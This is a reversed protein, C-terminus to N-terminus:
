PANVQIDDITITDTIVVTKHTRSNIRCGGNKILEDFLVPLYDMLDSSSAGAELAWRATDSWSVASTKLTARLREVLRPLIADEAHTESKPQYDQKPRVLSAVIKKPKPDDQATNLYRLPPEMVIRISWDMPTVLAKNLRDTFQRERDLYIMKRLFDHVNAHYQMWQHKRDMFWQSINELHNRIHRCHPAVQGGGRQEDADELHSLWVNSTTISSFITIRLDEVTQVITGLLTECKKIANENPDRLMNTIVSGIKEYQQDMISQHRDTVSMLNEASQKLGPVIEQDWVRADAGHSVANYLRALEGNFLHLIETLKKGSMAVQQRQEQAINRGMWTINYAWSEKKLREWEIKNLCGAEKLRFLSDVFRSELGQIDQAEWTNINRFLSQLTEHDITIGEKEHVQTHHHILVLFAIDRPMLTMKVKDALIRQIITEVPTTDQAPRCAEEQHPETDETNQLAPTPINNM